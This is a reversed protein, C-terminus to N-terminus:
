PSPANRQDHRPQDAGDGISACQAGVEGGDTAERWARAHERDDFGIGVPVSEHGRGEREAIGICEADRTELLAECQAGRPDLALDHQELAHEVGLLQGGRRTVVELQHNM